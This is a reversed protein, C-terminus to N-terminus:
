YILPSGTYLVPEIRRSIKLSINKNGWEYRSQAILYALLFQCYIQSVRVNEIFLLNQTKQSM